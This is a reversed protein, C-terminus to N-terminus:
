RPAPASVTSGPSFGCGVLQHEIHERPETLLELLLRVSRRGIEIRPPELHTWPRGESTTSADSELVIVSVDYPIGLGIQGAVQAFRHAQHRNELIFASVGRAMAGRVWDASIDDADATVTHALSLSGESAAALWGLRFDERPEDLVRQQVYGIERHGLGVLERVMQQVAARYDIHISPIDIGEIRRRGIFVVHYGERVIRRLESVDPHLGLLISGDAIRLRNVGDRYLSRHSSTRYGSTFLVLDVEHEQAEREIGVIFPYYFDDPEAPFASEWSYVGVLNARAGKLTQAAVNPQYDLDRIAEQVRQITAPALRQADARGNLVLSVVAQSVGAARAVDRQSPRSM